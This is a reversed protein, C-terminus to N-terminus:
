ALAAACIKFLRETLSHRVIRMGMRRVKCAFALAHGVLLDRLLAVCSQVVTLSCQFSGIVVHM